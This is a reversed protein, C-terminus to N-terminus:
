RLRSALPVHGQWQYGLGISQGLQYYRRSGYDSRVGLSQSGQGTAPQDSSNSGNLFQTAFVYEGTKYGITNANAINNSVTDIALSVNQLGSLATAINSM